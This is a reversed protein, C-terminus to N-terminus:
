LRLILRLKPSQFTLFHDSSPHPDVPRNNFPILAAEKAALRFCKEPSEFKPKAALHGM